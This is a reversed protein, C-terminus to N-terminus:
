DKYFEEHIPKLMEAPFKIVERDYTMLGNIEAEIDTTQTYVGGAIGKPKLELLMKMSHRYRKHLEDMDKPLGGYSWRRAKVDWLHKEDVVFGHGGFEGVVKVYDDFRKDNVPFGPHPYSHNDCIHGIPWFNGGSAINVLRTKDYEVIWKGVDMTRHQGWAENFPIWQVISPHNYFADVMGKFEKMFQEHAHDPWEKDIPDLKLRTWAPNPISSVQDQWVLLGIKDCYAYWRRPCLKIHSRIMNFGAAKTYDIDFRMAEDSPPTLLGGPWWGQDLTGLHFIEEGNLTFRWHGNEDKKRWATRIGAYSRITDITKRGKLLEIELDYLNPENPSWLKADEITVTTGDIKGKVSEVKKDKFFATIKVGDAVDATGGVFTKVTITGPNIKTDIKLHQIYTDPVEELWVTQWIGSNRTYFIGGPRRRQKGVLQYHATEDTARVLLTNKGDVLHDTIDFSFPLNGGRHSGAEKGNVWLECTNDVADFNILVRTKKKKKIDIERQYWLEEWPALIHGVGSLASEIPYPVLIKGKWTTPKEKASPKNKDRFTYSWLGNLNTWNERVMQPRPYEPWANEPTVKKAWRSMIRNGAPKWDQAEIVTSTILLLAIFLKLHKLM